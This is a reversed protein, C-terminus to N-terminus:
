DVEAVTTKDSIQQGDVIEIAMQQWTAVDDVDPGFLAGYALGVAHRHILRNHERITLEGCYKDLRTVTVAYRGDLTSTWIAEPEEERSELNRHHPTLNGKESKRSSAAKPNHDRKTAM